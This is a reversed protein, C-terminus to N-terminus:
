PTMSKAFHMASILLEKSIATCFNIRFTIKYGFQSKEINKFWM